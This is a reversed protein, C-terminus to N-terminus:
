GVFLSVSLKLLTDKVEKVRQNLFSVTLEKICQSAQSTKLSGKTVHHLLEYILRASSKSCSVDVDKKTLEQYQDLSLM